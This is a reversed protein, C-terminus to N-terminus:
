VNKAILNNFNKGKESTRKMLIEGMKKIDDMPDMKSLRPPKMPEKLFTKKKESM